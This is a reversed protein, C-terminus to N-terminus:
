ERISTNFMHEVFQDISVRGEDMELESLLGKIDDDSLPEGFKGLLELLDCGAIYGAWYLILQLSKNESFLRM